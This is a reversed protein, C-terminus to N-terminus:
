QQIMKVLMFLDYMPVERGQTNGGIVATMMIAAKKMDITM